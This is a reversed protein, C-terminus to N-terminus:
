QFKCTDISTGHTRPGSVDAKLWGDTVAFAALEIPM